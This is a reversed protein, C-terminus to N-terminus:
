QRELDHMIGTVGDHEPNIERIKRLAELAKQKLGAEVYLRALFLRVDLQRPDRRIIGEKKLHALAIGFLIDM